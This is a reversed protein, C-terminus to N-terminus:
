ESGGINRLTNRRSPISAHPQGRQKRLRRKTPKRYRRFPTNRALKIALEFSQQRTDTQLSTIWDSM